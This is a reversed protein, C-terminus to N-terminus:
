QSFQVNVSKIPIFLTSLIKSKLNIHYLKESIEILTLCKVSLYGPLVQINRFCLRAAVNGPIRPSSLSTLYTHIYNVSIEDAGGLLSKEPARQVTRFNNRITVENSYQVLLQYCRSSNLYYVILFFLHLELSKYSCRVLPQNMTTTPPPNPNPQPSRDNPRFFDDTLPTFKRSASM